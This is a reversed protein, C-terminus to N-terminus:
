WRKVTSRPLSLDRWRHRLDLEPLGYAIGEVLLEFAVLAHDEDALVNGDRPAHEGHRGAQDFPVTRRPPDVRRDGLQREGAGGKAARHRAQSRHDLDHERVEQ